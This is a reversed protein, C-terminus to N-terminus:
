EGAEMESATLGELLNNITSEHVRAWAKPSSNANHPALLCNDMRRLPSEQPLPEEEFVDMGAGAISGQELAQVLANEDVVPGRCTNILYASEKMTELQARGILHHSTPNLTCNLSVYDSERLLHDLSVMQVGHSQIFEQPQEVIDNGLLTMGFAAARRVVAKGVNGMGIIGLTCEELSVGMEKKWQGSRVNRDLWPLRRAFSLIYGMVSDAVPQTFADPTNYVRVGLSRAAALDISDIGTGWKSIVKLGPAAKLVRESFRDDGCIVGDIGNIQSLIEEEELREEVAAEVVEIGNAAFTPRFEDLVPLMYPASVLVRWKMPDGKNPNGNPTERGTEDIDRGIRDRSILRM